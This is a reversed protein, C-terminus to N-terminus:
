CFVKNLERRCEPVEEWSGDLQCRVSSEGSINYGELCSVDLLFDSIRTMNGNSVVPPKGCTVGVLLKSSLNYIFYNISNKSECNPTPSWEKNECIITSEGVINYGENCYYTVKLGKEFVKYESSSVM